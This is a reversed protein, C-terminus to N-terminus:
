ASDAPRDGVLSAIAMSPGFPGYALRIAIRSASLFLGHTALSTFAYWEGSILCYTFEVKLSETIVAQYDKTVATLYRDSQPKRGILRHACAEIEPM